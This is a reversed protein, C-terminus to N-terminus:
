RFIGFIWVAERSRNALIEQWESLSKPATRNKQEFQDLYKQLNERAKEMLEPNKRIREAVARHLAISREEIRIHDSVCVKLQPFGATGQGQKTSRKNKLFGTKM